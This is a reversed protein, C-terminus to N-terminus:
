QPLPVPHLEGSWLARSIPDSPRSIRSMDFGRAEVYEFGYHYAAWMLPYSFVGKARLAEKISALKDMGAQLNAHWDYVWPEYPLDSVSKWTTQKLQM